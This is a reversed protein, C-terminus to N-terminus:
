TWTPVHKRPISAEIGGGFFLAQLATHAGYLRTYKAYLRCEVLVLGKFPPSRDLGDM